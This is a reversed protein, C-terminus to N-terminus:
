DGKVYDLELGASNMIAHVLMLSKDTGYPHKNRDVLNDIRTPKNAELINRYVLRHTAVSNARDKMEILAKRSGYASYLRTETESLVKCPSNRYPMNARMRAGVSVPLGYHNTKSSSTALYTEPTISVMIIYQPAIMAPTDGWVREGDVGGLPALPLKTPEYPTGEVAKTVDYPKRDTSVTYYVYCEDNYVEAIIQRFTEDSCGLYADYQKTGFVAIGQTIVDRVEAIDGTELLSELGGHRDVCQRTLQQIKRSIACFYHEYLNSPNMRTINLRHTVVM